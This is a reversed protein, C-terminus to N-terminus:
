RRVQLRVTSGIERLEGARPNQGTVERGFGQNRVEVDFGLASLLLRAATVNMGVVDPVPIKLKADASVQL